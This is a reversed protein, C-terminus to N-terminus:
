KNVEDFDLLHILVKPEEAEYNSPFKLELKVGEYYNGPLVTKEVRAVDSSALSTVFISDGGQGNMQKEEDRLLQKMEKRCMELKSKLTAQRTFFGIDSIHKSYINSLPQKLHNKLYHLQLMSIISPRNPQQYYSIDTTFVFKSKKRNFQMTITYIPGAHITRKSPKTKKTPKKTSHFHFEAGFADKECTVDGDRVTWLTPLDDLPSSGSSSVSSRSSSVDTDTDCSITSSHCGGTNIPQSMNAVHQMTERSLFASQPRTLM